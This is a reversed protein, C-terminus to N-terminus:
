RRPFPRISCSCNRLARSPESPTNSSTRASAQVGWASCCPTNSAPRRPTKPSKSSNRPIIANATLSMSGASGNERTRAAGSPRTATGFGASKPKFRWDELTKKVATEADGLSWTMRSLRKDLLTQRKKEIVGLLKDFPDCFKQVADNLLADTAEDLSIGVEKLTALQERAQELNEAWNETLSPRVKGNKKFELYTEAPVTNVTNDGILENVYITKLYTPNKTSTSAWLLRQPMAGKAALVKWRDSAYLELYKAYAVKANAIAIKGIISKLKTRRAPDETADLAKGIKDDLLSDIRSIFFSAVSAVKSPDGGKAVLRELGTMYADAVKEYAAVAFLLTVNVSIGEGLVEAIAPVGEPTAPIKILVNDRGLAKHLRKAEAITGPTDHALYPSVEFSVYGDKGKTRVYTPYLVDAALKIDDGALAEYIQIASLPGSAVLAKTAPDYDAGGTLAKEFIAPNSTVGLLGDHELMAALEGSTILGRRINDFWISQGFKQVETITTAM